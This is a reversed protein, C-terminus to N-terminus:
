SPLRLGTPHPVNRAFCVSRVRKNAHLVAYCARAICWERVAAGLRLPCCPGRARMSSFVRAFWPCTKLGRVCLTSNHASTQCPTTQPVGREPAALTKVRLEIILTVPGQFQRGSVSHVPMHVKSARHAGVYMGGPGQGAISARISRRRITACRGGEIPKPM